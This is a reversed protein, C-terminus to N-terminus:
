CPINLENLKWPQFLSPESDRLYEHMLVTNYQSNAGYKMNLSCLVEYKIQLLHKPAHLLGFMGTTHLMKLTVIDLM